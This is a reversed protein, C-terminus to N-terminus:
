AMKENHQHVASDQTMMGCQDAASERKLSAERALLLIEATELMLSTEKMELTLSTEATERTM